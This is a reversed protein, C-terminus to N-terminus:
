IASRWEAVSVALLGHPVSTPGFGSWIGSRSVGYPSRVTSPEHLLRNGARSRKQAASSSNGRRVVGLKRSASGTGGPKPGGPGVDYLCFVPLTKSSWGRTMLLRMTSWVDSFGAATAAEPCGTRECFGAALAVGQVVSGSGVATGGTAPTGAPQVGDCLVSKMGFTVVSTPREGGYLERKVNKPWNKSWPTSWVNLLPPVTNTGSRASSGSRVSPGSPLGFVPSSTGALWANMTSVRALFWGPGSPTRPVASSM